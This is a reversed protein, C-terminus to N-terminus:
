GTQDSIGVYFMAKSPLGHALTLSAKVECNPKEQRQEEARGGDFILCHAQPDLLKYNRWAWQTFLPPSVVIGSAEQLPSYM